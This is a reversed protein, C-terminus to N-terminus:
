ALNQASWPGIQPYEGAHKSFSPRFHNWLGWLVWSPNQPHWFAHAIMRNGDATTDMDRLHAPLQVKCRQLNGKQPHTTFLRRSDCPNSTSWEKCDRTRTLLCCYFVLTENSAIQFLISRKLARILVRVSTVPLGTMWCEPTAYYQGTFQDNPALPNVIIYGGCVVVVHLWWMYLWCICGGGCM